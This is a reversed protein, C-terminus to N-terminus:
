WKCGSVVKSRPLDLCRRRSAMAASRPMGMIQQNLLWQLTTIKSPVIEVPQVLQSIHFGITFILSEEHWSTCSGFRKWCSTTSWIDSLMEESWGNKTSPWHHQAVIFMLVNNPIQTSATDPFTLVGFLLLSVFLKYLAMPWNKNAGSIATCTILVCPELKCNWVPVMIKLWIWIHLSPIYIYLTKGEPVSAFSSM